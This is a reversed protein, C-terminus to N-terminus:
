ILEIIPTHNRRIADARRHVFTAYADANDAESIRSYVEVGDILGTLRHLESVDIFQWRVLQQKLNYFSDEENKGIIIAKGFAEQEDPAAILRLQEDFQAAHDGNGCIIRFVIKALYWQMASLNKM